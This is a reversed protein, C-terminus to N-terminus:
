QKESMKAMVNQAYLDKLISQSYADGWQAAFTYNRVAQKGAMQCYELSKEMDEEVYIGSEYCLGLGNLGEVCGQDAAAKFYEFVKKEDKKTGIGYFYCMALNCQGIAHGQDAAKKFYQFAKQFDESVGHGYVYCNGLNNLADPDNYNEAEKYCSFAKEFNQYGDRAFYWRNGQVNLMKGRDSTEEFEMWQDYIEDECVGKEAEEGLLFARVFSKQRALKKMISRYSDTIEEFFAKKEAENLFNTEEKVSKAWDMWKKEFGSVTQNIRFAALEEETFRTLTYYKTYNKSEKSNQM